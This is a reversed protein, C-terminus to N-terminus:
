RVRARRPRARRPDVREVRGVVREDVDEVVLRQGGGVLDGGPSERGSAPTGIAILFLRGTAPLRSVNAEDSNPSKAGGILATSTSRSCSAPAITTPVSSGARTRSRRRRGLRPAEAGRAVRPVGRARRAARRAARRRRDRGAHHRDGVGVVAAARRADRRRAAPEDAQLRLAPPDREAREDALREEADVADDRARRLVRRDREVHHGPRRTPSTVQAAAAPRATRPAPRGRRRAREPDRHRRQRRDLGRDHMGRLTRATSSAAASSASRPCSITSTSGGHRM